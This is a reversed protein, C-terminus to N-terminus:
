YYIKWNIFICHSRIVKGQLMSASHWAEEWTWSLSLILRNEYSQCLFLSTSGEMNDPAISGASPTSSGLSLLAKPLRFFSPNVWYNWLRNRNASAPPWPTFRLLVGTRTLFLLTPPSPQQLTLLATPLEAGLCALARSIACSSPPVVAGPLWWSMIAPIEELPLGDLQPASGPHPFTFFPRVAAGFCEWHPFLASFLSHCCSFSLTM